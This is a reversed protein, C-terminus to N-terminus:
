SPEEPAIGDEVIEIYPTALTDDWLTIMPTGLHRQIDLSLEIHGTVTTFDIKGDVFVQSTVDEGDATVSVNYFNYTAPAIASKNEVEPLAKIAEILELLSQTNLELKSTSM